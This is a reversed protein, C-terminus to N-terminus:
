SELSDGTYCKSDYISKRVAGTKRPRELKSLSRSNLPGFLPDFFTRCRATRKTPADPFCWTGCRIARLCPTYTWSKRVAPHDVKVIRPHRLHSRHRADDRVDGPRRLRHLHSQHPSRHSHFLAQGGLADRSQHRPNARHAGAFRAFHQVSHCHCLSSASPPRPVTTSIISSWFM